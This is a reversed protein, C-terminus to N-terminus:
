IYAFSDLDLIERIVQTDQYGVFPPNLSELHELLRSSTSAFFRTLPSKFQSNWSWQSKAESLRQIYLQCCAGAIFFCPKAKAVSFTFEQFFYLFVCRYFWDIVPTSVTMGNVIILTCCVGSFIFLQDFANLNKHNFLFEDWKVIKKTQRFIIFSRAVWFIKSSLSSVSWLLLCSISGLFHGISTVAKKIFSDILDSSELGWWGEFPFDDVLILQPVAQFDSNWSQLWLKAGIEIFVAWHEKLAYFTSERNSLFLCCFSCVLSKLFISAFFLPLM